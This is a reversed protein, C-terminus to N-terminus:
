PEFAVSFGLSLADVILKRCAGEALVRSGSGVTRGLCRFDNERGENPRRLLCDDEEDTVIVGLLKGLRGLRGGGVRLGVGGPRGVNLM